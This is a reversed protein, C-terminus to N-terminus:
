SLHCPQKGGSWFAPLCHTLLANFDVLLDLMKV